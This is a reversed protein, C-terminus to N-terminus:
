GYIRAAAMADALKRWPIQDCSEERNTYFGDSDELWSQMAQLFNGLDGNEWQHGEREFESILSGLFSEFTKQNSIKATDEPTM